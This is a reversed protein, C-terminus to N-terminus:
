LATHLGSLWHDYLGRAVGNLRGTRAEVDQLIEGPLQVSETRESLSALEKHWEGCWSRILQPTMEVHCQMALHKGMSFAQNACYESSAINQAGPPVSFTEGHWHFSEFERLEGFWRKAEDNEAVAVRGWGIEKVPNARVRGGLAKAMLQGGLCHGLVPVDVSVAAKILELLGPIWELADNVSMPGGMLAMGSFRTPDWPVPDGQDIKILQWPIGKSELYTAFYGPGETASHRFIAVPKIRNNTSGLM